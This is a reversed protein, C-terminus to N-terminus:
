LMRGFFLMHHNIKFEFAANKLSFFCNQAECKNPVVNEGNLNANNL